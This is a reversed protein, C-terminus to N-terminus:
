FAQEGNIVYFESNKHRTTTEVDIAPL